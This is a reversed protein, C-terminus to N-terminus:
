NRSYRDKYSADNREYFDEGIVINIRARSSTIKYDSSQCLVKVCSPAFIEMMRTATLSKASNLVISKSVLNETNTTSIVDGGLNTVVRAADAALGPHSTANFIAITEREGTITSDAMHARVFLDLSITDVGLVRSSDPLLLSSTISSSALDLTIAKDPRVKSIAGLLEFTEIPTFDTKAGKIFGLIKFPNGHLGLVLKDLSDTQGEEKVAIFGDIPLGLLKSLSQKLLEAGVPPNEEQGLDYASGIKWKGFGKPLDLYTDDPVKLIVMEKTAPDYNVVSIGQYKFAINLSTKTNWSYEKKVLLDESFPSGLSKFIETAKGLFIISLLAFIALLALRSSSRSKRNTFFNTNQKKRKRKAGFGM